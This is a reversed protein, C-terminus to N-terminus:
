WPPPRPRRYRYGRSERRTRRREDARNGQLHRRKPGHGVSRRHSQRDTLPRRHDHRHPYRGRRRRRNGPAGRGAASRADRHPGLVDPQGGRRGSRATRPRHRRAPHTRCHRARSPGPERLTRSHRPDQRTPRVDDAPERRRALHEHLERPHLGPAGKSLSILKDKYRNGTTMMKRDSTFPIENLRPCQENIERLDLGDKEAMVLLAIETPDGLYAATKRTTPRRQTTAFRPPRWCSISGSTRKRTAFPSEVRGRTMAKARSPIRASAPVYIAQVTM